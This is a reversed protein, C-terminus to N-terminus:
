VLGPCLTKVAESRFLLYEHISLFINRCFITAMQFIIRVKAATQAVFWAGM